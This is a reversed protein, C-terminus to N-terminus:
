KYSNQKASQQNIMDGINASKTEQRQKQASITKAEIDYEHNALM